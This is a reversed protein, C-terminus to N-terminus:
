YPFEPLLYVCSYFMDRPLHHCTSLVFIFYSAFNPPIPNQFHVAGLLPTIYLKLPQSGHAHRSFSSEVHLLCSACLGQHLYAQCTWPFALLSPHSHLLPNPHLAARPSIPIVWPIQPSSFCTKRNSCLSFPLASPLQLVSLGESVVTSCHYLCSTRAAQVLTFPTSTSSLPLVRLM